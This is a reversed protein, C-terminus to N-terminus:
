IHKIEQIKLIYFYKLDKFDRLDELRPGFVEYKRIWLHACLHFEFVEYKQTCLHACLHVIFCAEIAYVSTKFM